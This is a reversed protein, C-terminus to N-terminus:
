STVGEPGMVRVGAREIARIVHAPAITSVRLVVIQHGPTTGPETVLSVISAGLDAAIRVIDALQRTLDTLELQVRTSPELVGMM